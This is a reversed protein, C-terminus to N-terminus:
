IEQIHKHKVHTYHKETHAQKKEVSRSKETFGLSIKRRIIQNYCHSVRPMLVSDIVHLHCRSDTGAAHLCVRCSDGDADRNQDANM